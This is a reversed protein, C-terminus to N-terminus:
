AKSRSRTSRGAPRKAPGIAPRDPVASRKPALESMLWRCWGLYEREIGIARRLAAYDGFRTSSPRVESGSRDSIAAALQELTALRAEHTEVQSKLMPVSVASPVGKLAYAKIVLEDNPPRDQPSQAVWRNLEARGKETISHVKRAPGVSGDLVEFAVLRAKVLKALEPYIQGHRAQWLFGLPPRMQRAIDYGSQPKRSLLALIAYGLSSQMHTFPLLADIAEVEAVQYVL